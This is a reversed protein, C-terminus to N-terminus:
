DRPLGRAREQEPRSESSSKYGTRIESNGRELRLYSLGERKRGKGKQKARQMCYSKLKWFMRLLMILIGLLMYHDPNHGGSHWHSGSSQRTLARGLPFAMGTALAEDMPHFVCTHTSHTSNLPRSSFCAWPIAVWQARASQSLSTSLQQFAM